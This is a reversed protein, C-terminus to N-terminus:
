ERIALTQFINEGFKGESVDGLFQTDVNEYAGLLLCTALLVAAIIGYGSQINTFCLRDGRMVDRPPRKSYYHSYVEQEEPM